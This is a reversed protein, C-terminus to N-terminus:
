PSPSPAPFVQQLVLPFVQQLVLPFEQPMGPVERHFSSGNVPVFIHSPPHNQIPVVCQRRRHTCHATSERKGTNLRFVACFPEDCGAVGDEGIFSLM